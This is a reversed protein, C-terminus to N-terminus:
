LSPAQARAMWVSSDSAPGRISPRNEVEVTVPRGTTVSYRRLTSESGVAGSSDRSNVWSSRITITSCALSSVPNSTM